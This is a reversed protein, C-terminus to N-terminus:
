EDVAQNQRKNEVYATLKAKHEGHTNISDRVAQEIEENSRV